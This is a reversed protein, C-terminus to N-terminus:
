LTLQLRCYRCRLPRRSRTRQMRADADRELYENLASAGSAVLGGTVALLAMQGGGPWGGAALIAGGAAAFLLLLVIRVKFLALLSRRLGVAAGPAQTAESRDSVHQARNM